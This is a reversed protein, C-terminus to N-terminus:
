KHQTDCTLGEHETDKHQIDNHETNKLQTDNHQTANHQTDNHQTDHRWQLYNCHKHTKFFIRRYYVQNIQLM